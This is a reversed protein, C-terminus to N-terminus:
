RQGDAAQGRGGRIGAHGPRFRLRNRLRRGPRQGLYKAMLADQIAYAGAMDAPLLEPPLPTFRERAQHQSYLADAAAAVPDPTASM